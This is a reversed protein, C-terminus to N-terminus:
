HTLVPKVKLGPIANPLQASMLIEGDKIDPSRVLIFSKGQQDQWEGLREVNVGELRENKILYIRNSGFLAQAPVSYVGTVPPLQLLLEIPRGLELVQNGEVVEFLGDIGGRGTNVQGALRALSLTVPTGDVVATASLPKGPSHDLSNRIIALYRSPIQARVELDDISYLSLLPGNVQVRDNVSVNINAIRSDFPATISTRELDLRAQDLM